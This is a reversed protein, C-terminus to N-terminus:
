IVENAEFEKKIHKISNGLVYETEEINLGYLECILHENKTSNEYFLNINIKDLDIIPLEDLEYNNIHNNSSTIKFRWNLLKSNLLFSLKKLDLFSRSSNIYNCSNALIDNKKSFTFKM